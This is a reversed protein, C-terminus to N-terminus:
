HRRRPPPTPSHLSSTVISCLLILMSYQLTLAPTPCNFCLLLYDDHVPAGTRILSLVLIQAAQMTYLIPTQAEKRNPHIRTPPISSPQHPLRPKYNLMPVTTHFGMGMHFMHVYVHVCVCACMCVYVDLDRNHHVRDLIGNDDIAVLCELYRHSCYPVDSAVIVRTNQLLDYRQSRMLDHCGRLLLLMCVCVCM